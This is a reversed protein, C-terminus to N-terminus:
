RTRRDALAKMIEADIAKLVKGAGVAMNVGRGTIIGLAAGIVFPAYPYDLFASVGVVLALVVLTIGLKRLSTVLKRVGTILEIDQSEM